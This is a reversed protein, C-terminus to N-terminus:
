ILKIQNTIPVADVVNLIVELIANEKGLASQKKKERM